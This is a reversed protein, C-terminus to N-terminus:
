CLVAWGLGLVWIWIGWGGVIGRGAGGTYFSEGQPGGGKVDIETEPPPPVQVGSVPPPPPQNLAPPLGRGREVAIEFRMGKACQIGDQADSFFYVAGETTLPVAVVAAKGFKEGGGGASYVFTGDGGDESADCRQYTTKNNTEIVTM